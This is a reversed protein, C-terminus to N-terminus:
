IYQSMGLFVLDEIYLNKHPYLRSLQLGDGGTFIVKIDTLSTDRNEQLLAFAREVMGVAASWCGLNVAADTNNAFTLEAIPQLTSSVNAANDVISSHMLKVGPVIWGGQHHGDAGLVDITTATGADIILRCQGPFLQNAALLTLWRDVGYFSPDDYAITIGFKQKPTKIVTYSIDNDECWDIIPQNISQQSVNAIICRTLKGFHNSLWNDTIASTDIFTIDSRHSQCITVYKSRTNGIDLLLEM